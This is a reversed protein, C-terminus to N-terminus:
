TRLQDLGCRCNCFDKLWFYDWFLLPKTQHNLFNKLIFSVSPFAITLGQLRQLQSPIRSLVWHTTRSETCQSELLLVWQCCQLLPTELQSQCMTRQGVNLLSKASRPDASRLKNWFIIPKLYKLLARAQLVQSLTALLAFIKRQPKWRPKQKSM